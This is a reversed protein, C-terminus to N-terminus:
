EDRYQTPTQGTHNKFFRFFFSQSPFYLRASIEKITMDTHRLMNKADLILLESLWDPVSRGSTEKVIKSLYKPTVCMKDAYYGVLHERAHDNIALKMFQELMQRQRTTRVPKEMDERRKSNALFGAFQYFVSSVLGGISEKVFQSDTKTIDLALNVYKHLMEAEDDSLHICPDRLVEVAEVLVKSPNIGINSIYSASVCILTVRLNRDLEDSQSIRLINGPTILLLTGTTLHYDTLNVSCNVSGEVCYAALYCDVRFPYQLYAYQPKEQLRTIFFDDGIGLSIGSPVMQKIKSPTILTESYHEM